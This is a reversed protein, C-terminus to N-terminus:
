SGGEAARMRQVLERFVERNERVRRIPTTNRPTAMGIPTIIAWDTLLELPHEDRDGAKMLAIDFPSSELTADVSSDKAEHVSFWLHERSGSDTPYGLKAIVPFKFEEMEKVLERFRPWTARAREATLQTAADSFYLLLQGDAVERQMWKVPRPRDFFRGFFGGAPECLVSRGTNHSEDADIRLAVDGASARRNFTAVDVLRVAAKEGALPFRDTTPKVKEELIAFAMVRLADRGGDWTISSHPNLIDFDFFGIESLGHSHLWRVPPGDDEDDDNGGEDGGPKPPPPDDTVGHLVYLSEVDLDADHSLEDDLAARSWFRMATHDLVALGDDGMFVRLFRLLMKRDRLVDGRGGRVTMSVISGAQKALERESQDLNQDFDILTSPPPPANRLCIVTAQGWKPHQLEARWHSDGAPVSKGTVGAAKLAPAFEALRPPMAGRFLVSGACDVSKRRWGLM